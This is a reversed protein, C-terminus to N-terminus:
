VGWADGEASCHARCFGEHHDRFEPDLVLDELAGVIEDFKKDQAPARRRPVAANRGVFRRRVAATGERPGALVEASVDMLLICLTAFAQTRPGWEGM